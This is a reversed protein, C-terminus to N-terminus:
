IRQNPNSEIEEWSIKNKQDFYGTVSIMLGNDTQGGKPPLFVDLNSFKEKFKEQLKKNSVVGGGLVVGKACHKEVARLTKTVLVEVISDEIEKSFSSIYNKTKQIKLPQKKHGYLVATKLGSFSFDFDKTKIMPRPLKFFLDEKANEAASSIAPGGPYGLGLVRATKDFCEGAADDRTEGIIEYSNFKNILVLQTHGGSVILGILPFKIKKNSLELFNEKWSFFSILLHAKIHNVPILPIDWCYSLAKAFNIGVWLSPDLGPGNTVAIADVNPKKIKSLLSVTEKKLVDEKELISEIKKRNIETSNKKYLSAEKLAQETLCAIIKQHERRAVTPYIGGWKQHIKEQSSVLNSLVEIELPKEKKIEIISIGTDDCSTEIGMIIM